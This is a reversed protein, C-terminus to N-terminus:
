LHIAQEIATLDLPSVAYGSQAMEAHAQPRLKAMLDMAERAQVLVSLRDHLSTPRPFRLTACATRVWTSTLYSPSCERAESISKEMNGAQLMVVGPIILLWVEQRDIYAMERALDIDRVLTNGYGLLTQELDAPPTAPRGHADVLRPPQLTAITSKDVGYVGLLGAVGASQAPASRLTAHLPGFSVPYTGNAIAYPAILHM